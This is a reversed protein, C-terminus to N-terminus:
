PHYERIEGISDSIKVWDVGTERLECKYLNNPDTRTWLKKPMNEPNHKGAWLKELESLREDNCFINKEVTIYPPSETRLQLSNPFFIRFIRDEQLDVMGLLPQVGYFRVSLIEEKRLFLFDAVKDSTVSEGRGCCLANRPIIKYRRVAYRKYERVVGESWSTASEDNIDAAYIEVPVIKGVYPKIQELVQEPPLLNPKNLDEIHEM